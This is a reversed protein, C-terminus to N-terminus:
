DSASVPHRSYVRPRAAGAVVFGIAAVLEFLEELFFKPVGPVHGLQKEFLETAVALAVSVALVRGWPRAVAAWGERWFARFRVLVFVGIALPVGWVFSFALLRWHIAAKGHLFFRTSAIKTGFLMRDLDIEGMILGILCAVIALELPSVRGTARANRVLDRGFLLAAGTDLLVQLWEVAGNEVTLRAALPPDVLAVVSLVAVAILALTAFVTECRISRAAVFVEDFPRRDSEPRL